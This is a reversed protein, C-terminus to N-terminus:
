IYKRGVPVVDPALLPAALWSDQFFNYAHALDFERSMGLLRSGM